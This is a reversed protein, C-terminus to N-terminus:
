LVFVSTFPSLTYLLTETLTRITSAAMSGIKRFLKNRSIVLAPESIYEYVTYMLSMNVIIEVIFYCLMYCLM